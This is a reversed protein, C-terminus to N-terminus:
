FDWEQELEFKRRSIGEVKQARTNNKLRDYNRGGINQQLDKSTLNTTFFTAKGIRSDLIKFLKEDTWETDKIAGLDDLVVADAKQIWFMIDAESADSEKRYTSKILDLLAPLTIFIGYKGAALVEHIAAAALHSKGIGYSGSLLVNRPNENGEVVEKVFQAALKFAKEQTENEPEFEQFTVTKLHEPMLSFKEFIYFHKREKARRANESERKSIQAIECSCQRFIYEQGAKPSWAPYVQLQERIDGGCAECTGVVVVPNIKRGAMKTISKGIHEM